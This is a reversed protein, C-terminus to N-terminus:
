PSTVTINALILGSDEAKDVVTVPLELLTQGAPTGESSAFMVRITQDDIWKYRCVVGPPTNPLIVSNGGVVAGDAPGFVGAAFAIDFTATDVSGAGVVTIPLSVAQGAQGELDPSVVSLSLRSSPMLTGGGGGGGCGAFCFVAITLAAFLPLASTRKM